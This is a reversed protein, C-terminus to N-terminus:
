LQQSAGVGEGQAVSQAQAHSQTMGTHEHRTDNGVCAAQDNSTDVRHEHRSNQNSSIATSHSHKRSLHDALDAKSDTYIQGDDRGRSIAVYAMRSNVLQSGQETDVHVLVRDATQGQSSHSTMAYGYDLHPHKSADVHVLRRSDTRITMENDSSVRVVTGLERNAVQLDKSPATFQVRDGEAIQRESERYVSIGQLRRPDYTVREGNEREVTLLNQKADIDTVASYEGPKIRLLKSGHSYRLVDNPQYREAWARDAGTLDQRSELIRVTKEARQVQGTDQMARHILLNLERRSENDPSIVLTGEPSRAYERAMEQLREGHSEIEHVRGQRQLNSVAERVEGRALQEVAEKLAPDKQRIIEDLHATRMGAEQLQHYPRGAEVAEHQRVDGVLLVRDPDRLGRFFENIQRTSALSSEDLVYLHKIDEESHAGRALHHQLTSAQIGAEQLRRAAGSTPAFGQVHYGDREAAERIAALSTTKGAGAAGELGTIQDQSELIEAVAIRQSNSLHRCHREVPQRTEM